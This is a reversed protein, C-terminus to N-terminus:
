GLPKAGEVVPVDHSYRQAMAMTRHGSAQQKDAPTGPTDTIGRHKLGHLTFREEPAIKGQAIAAKMLRQWATDLSSKDLPTGSETVMLVRDEPRLKVPRGSADMAIKRLRVLEDWAARLEPTWRTINDRSGKRRNSLIGEPLAHADTLTNVEIGRLRVAHAIVMAPALYPPGSGRTHATRAGRERAFELVLAFVDREPMKPNKKEKAQEVGKAPNTKAHGFRIGWAFLRRLYRLVHNATSPRGPVDAGGPGTSPSALREVLRQITPTDLRHIEISGLTRGNKLKFDTAVKGHIEYDRRTAKALEKFKTSKEFQKVLYGLTDPTEGGARQEAIAHLDSLRAKADAVTLKKTRGDPQPDQVYWRANEFYFGRPISAQDIHGPINPNHGRKRGRPM